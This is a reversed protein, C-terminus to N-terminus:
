IYHLIVVVGHRGGPTPLKVHLAKRRIPFKVSPHPIQHSPPSNSSSTQFECTKPHFEACPSVLAKNDAVMKKVIAVSDTSRNNINSKLPFSKAKTLSQSTLFPLSHFKQVELKMIQGHPDPM